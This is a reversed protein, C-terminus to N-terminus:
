QLQVNGLMERAHALTQETLEIGGLLRAIEHTRQTDKLQEVQSSTAENAVQKSVRLHQNGQAAVQALHTVCFVQGRAGVSRLMRGVVEAVGGSIGVDVEDFVLTPIVSTNATVVQIGLSIRSLEGGSAVKRIAQAPQGPNSAILYEVEEFGNASVQNLPQCQIFFRAHPMGLGHLQEEVQKALKDKTAIRQETLNTALATLKEYAQEEKEKLVDISEESGQLEALEADVSERLILLAEPLQKHKRATDYIHSLREEVQALRAPDQELTDQYHHLSDAAEQAQILAANMMELANELEKTAPTIQSASQLAQNLLSCINGEDNDALIGSAQYAKFQSDAINSLFAQEKELSEIEGEKLDLQELEQSQYALLQIKAEQESSRNQQASLEEKLQKWTGYQQAVQKSLETLQGFEDLQQRQASKKLLSQHEHQGHIDVLHSGVEKLDGLTCPRGNIYAKSRGEKSIVRRLICHQDQDLEREELWDHVHPYAQIDFTASIDARKEGHRVVGADTRGGLCLSLADVMISKGAGTEGSIVTMGTKFELDLSEVIAFNSIAISSLM